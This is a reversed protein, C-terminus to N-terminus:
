LSDRASEISAAHGDGVHETTGHQLAHLHSYIGGANQLLESHSGIEAIQGREMVVIRDAERVASLRHAIILVTRGRCIFGADEAKSSSSPIPVREAFQFTLRARWV